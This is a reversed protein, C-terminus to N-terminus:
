KTRFWRYLAPPANKGRTEEILESITRFEFGKKKLEAIISPLVDLTADVGSHMLVIDGDKPGLLVRGKIEASNNCGYDASNVSWLITSLGKAGAIGLVQDNYKGGPPRFIKIEAGIMAGLENRGLDLQEAVEVPKLETLTPHDYTHTGLENGSAHIEKVLEPYKKAMKGVVFFTARAGNEKLVKLLRSTYEPHPGDDFTLAISKKHEPKEPVPVAAAPPESPAPAPAPALMDYTIKAITLGAAISVLTLCTRWLYTDFKTPKRNRKKL